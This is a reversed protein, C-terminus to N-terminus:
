HFPFHQGNSSIGVTTADTLTFHPTMYEISSNSTISIPSSTEVISWCKSNLTNTANNQVVGVLFPKFYSISLANQLENKVLATDTKESVVFYKNNNITMNIQRGDSWYYATQPYLSMPMAVFMFTVAIIIKCILRNAMM